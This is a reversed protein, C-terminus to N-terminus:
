IAEYHAAMIVVARCYTDIGWNGDDETIDLGHLIGRGETIEDDDNIFVGANHEATHDPYESRDLHAPDNQLEDAPPLRENPDDGYHPDSATSIDDGPDGTWYGRNIAKERSLQYIATPTKNGATRIKHLNWSSLTEDLSHQIRPQFVIYLCIRHIPNEMELLGSSELFFFIQRFVELSDKRM